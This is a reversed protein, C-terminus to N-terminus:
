HMVPFQDQRGVRRMAADSRTKDPAKGATEEAGIPMAAPPQIVPGARHFSKPSSRMTVELHSASIRPSRCYVIRRRRRIKATASGSSSGYAFSVL